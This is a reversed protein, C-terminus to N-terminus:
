VRPLTKQYRGPDTLYYLQEQFPLARFWKKVAPEAHADFKQWSTRHAKRVQEPQEMYWRQHERSAGNLFAREEPTGEEILRRMEADAADHAPDPERAQPVRDTAVANLRQARPAADPQQAWAHLAPTKKIAKNVTGSSCGLREAMQHQSTWPEGQTRLRKLREAVERWTMDGARRSPGDDPANAGSLFEEFRQLQAAFWPAAYDGLGRVRTLTARWSLERQGTTRPGAGEAPLAGGLTPLEAPSPVIKEVGPVFAERLAVLAAAQQPRAPVVEEDVDYDPEDPSTPFPIAEVAGQARGDLYSEVGQRAAALNAPPLLLADVRLALNVLAPPPSM